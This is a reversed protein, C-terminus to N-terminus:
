ILRNLQIKINICITHEEQLIFTKYTVYFVNINRLEISEFINVQYLPIITFKRFM